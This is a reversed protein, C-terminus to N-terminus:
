NNKPNMFIEKFLKKNQIAANFLMEVNVKSEAKASNLEVVAYGGLAEEAYLTNENKKERIGFWLKQTIQDMNNNLLIQNQELIVIPDILNELDRVQHTSIIICKDENASKAILSRFITKSPIDLGNTPEDMFLFTTNCALAFAITAKKQQGYSMKSITKASDLGMANTYSVFQEYSFKPYFTKYIKAYKNLSIPPVNFVEPLYYTDELFQAERKRPTFKNVTITGQNPFLLGSMLRLLTTKGVGNEGLLGYICGTKFELNLTEFVYGRKCYRFNLNQINIM